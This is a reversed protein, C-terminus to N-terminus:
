ALNIDDQCNSKIQVEELFDLGGNEEFKLLTEELNESNMFHM